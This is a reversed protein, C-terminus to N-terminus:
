STPSLVVVEADRIFPRAYPYRGVYSALASERERGHALRGTVEVRRRGVLVSAPTPAAAFSRWWLKRRAVVALVVLEGGGTQAYRLPISFTRGTRRGRYTLVLLRGSWLRHARSRLLVRVAPNGLRLLRLPLLRDVAM